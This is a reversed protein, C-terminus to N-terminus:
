KYMETSILANRTKMLLKGLHNEGEGNCVGWFTDGWWNGEILEAPATSILKEKMVNNHFFKRWILDRMITLKVDKWDSRLSIHQGFKKAVRPPMNKDTFLKKEQINFSKHAQYAHEVSPYILGNYEIDVLYFNSLFFNEELFRDIKAVTM